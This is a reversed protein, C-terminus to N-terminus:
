DERKKAAKAVPVREYLTRRMVEIPAKMGTWLEFSRAGQHLLMELGDSARMGLRSAEELLRTKRLGYVLDFVFTDEAFRELEPLPTQDVAMGLGIPTANVVLGIGALEADAMEMVNRYLACGISSGDLESEGRRISDILLQGKGTNRTVITVSDAQRGAILAWAVSRAAGGAGLILAGPRVPGEPLSEELATLFGQVDTNAGFLQADQVVITNVAGTVGADRDATDMLQSAAMKHPITVNAGVVDSSRFSEIKEALEGAGVPQAEYTWPLGAAELAANQFLPSLSHEVPDGLLLLRSM